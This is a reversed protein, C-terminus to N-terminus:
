TVEFLQWTVVGGAQYFNALRGYFKLALFIKASGSWRTIPIVDCSLGWQVNQPQTTINATNANITGGYGALAIMTKDTGSWASALTNTEIYVTSILTL